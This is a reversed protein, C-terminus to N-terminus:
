RPEQLPCHLSSPNLSFDIINTMYLMHSLSCLAPTMFLVSTCLYLLIEKCSVAPATKRKRSISHLAFWMLNLTKM